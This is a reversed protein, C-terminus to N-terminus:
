HDIWEQRHVMADHQRGPVIGIRMSGAPPGEPVIGIVDLGTTPVANYKQPKMFGTM